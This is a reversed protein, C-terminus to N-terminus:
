TLGLAFARSKRFSDVQADSNGGRTKPGQERRIAAKNITPSRLAAKASPQSSLKSSPKSTTTCCISERSETTSPAEPRPVRFMCSCSLGHRSAPRPQCLLHIIHPTLNKRNATSLQWFSDLSSNISWTSVCTKESQCASLSQRSTGPRQDTRQDTCLKLGLRWVELGGPCVRIPAVISGCFGRAMGFCGVVRLVRGWAVGGM